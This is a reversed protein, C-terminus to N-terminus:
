RKLTAGHHLISGLIYSLLCAECSPIPGVIEDITLLPLAHEGYVRLEFTTDCRPNTLRLRHGFELLNIMSVLRRVENIAELAECLFDLVEDHDLVLLHLVQDM